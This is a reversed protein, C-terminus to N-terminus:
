QRDCAHRFAAPTSKDPSLRASSRPSGDRRMVSMRLAAPRNRGVRRHPKAAMKVVTRLEPQRQLAL